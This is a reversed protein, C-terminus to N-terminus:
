FHSSEVVQHGGADSPGAIRLAAAAAIAARRTFNFITM